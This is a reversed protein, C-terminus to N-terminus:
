RKSKTKMTVDSGTNITNGSGKNKIITQYVIKTISDNKQKLGEIKVASGFQDEMKLMFDLLKSRIVSLVQTVMTTPVSTRATIIHFYPNGKERINSQLYAAIEAPFIQELVGSEDEELYSELTAVSQYFDMSCLQKIREKSIGFTPIPQDNFKYNGNVYTATLRGQCERYEPLETKTEYGNLESDVWSQLVPNRLRSALVKTKLLPLTISKESDVLENIIDSLLSM